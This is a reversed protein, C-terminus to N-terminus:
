GGPEDEPPKRRKFEVIVDTTRGAEVAAKVGISSLMDASLNISCEVQADGVPVGEVRFKGHEDTRFRICGGGRILSMTDDPWLAPHFLEGDKFAWPAGNFNYVIGTVTGVGDVPIAGIAHGSDEVVLDLWQGTFNAGGIHLKYQGPRIHGLEFTGDAHIPVSSSFFDSAASKSDSSWSRPAQRDFVLHAIGDVIDEGNRVVTGTISVGPDLEVRLPDGDRNMPIWTEFPAFGPARVAVWNEAPDFEIGISFTGDLSGQIVTSKCRWGLPTKGPGAWVVFSPVPTGDPGIVKGRIVFERDLTVVLGDEPVERFGKYYRVFGPASVEVLYTRTQGGWYTASLQEFKGFADTTVKQGTGDQVVIDPVPNGQDDRVVGSFMEARALRIEDEIKDGPENNWTPYELRRYGRHEVLLGSHTLGPLEFNGQADTLISREHDPSWGPPTFKQPSVSAGAIPQGTESDVVRGKFTIGTKLKYEIERSAPDATIVYGAAGPYDYVYEKARVGLNLKCAMPLDLSLVADRQDFAVWDRWKGKTVGDATDVIVFYEFAEVPELSKADVVTITVPEAFAIAVLILLMSIAFARM